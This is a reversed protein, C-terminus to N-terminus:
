HYTLIVHPADVSGDDLLRYAEAADDFSVAETLLVDTDLSELHDFAVEFRRERDWRGRLSPDITSVQSSEISLRERHFSGGLDVAARKTGYWSGLLIRGDYGTAAIAADLTSPRGSLEYVLDAGDVALETDADPDSDSDRDRDLAGALDDPPVARDAGLTEALERRTAVPEVVVLRDLPFSSLVHTTCLGVLGAGYVVVREGVRPRGDLVLNTATEVSPLLTAEAPAVDERIPVVQDPTTRVRDAHPEFAFVHRGIWERDTAEGADTVEGVLAYGYPLPYEFEGDLSDLTADVAMGDPFEGRYVLLESGASIGSTITEVLLEDPGLGGVPETRHEVTGPESFYLVSADM